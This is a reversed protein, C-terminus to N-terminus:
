HSTFLLNRWNGYLFRMCQVDTWTLKDDYRMYNLNMRWLWWIGTKFLRLFIWAFIWAKDWTILKNVQDKLRWQNIQKACCNCSHSNTDTTFFFFSFGAPIYHNLLLLIMQFRHKPGSTVFYFAAMHWYCIKWELNQKICGYLWFPFLVTNIYSALADYM